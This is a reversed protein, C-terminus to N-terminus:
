KETPECPVVPMKRLTVPGLLGSTLPNHDGREFKTINTKTKRKDPPLKQDGILRNAWLNVVQIELRNKGPKAVSSIDVRYPAKWLTGLAHGNLSVQTVERLDGLDLELIGKSDLMDAPIDIDRVYTAAGSYYKINPDDSETWSQLTKFETSEPADWGKEFHVQWPGEVAQTVTEPVTVRYTQGKQNQLEYKGKDQAILVIGRNKDKVIQVASAYQTDPAYPFLLKGDKAISTFHPNAPSRFVVFTSGYPEIYLPMTVRGDKQVAYLVGRSIEGTDPSWIEPAKKDVRFNCQYYKAQNSQNSVFYIDVNGVVRHIYDLADQPGNGFCEFDPLVGSTALIDKASKWWIVRGKGYVNQTVTRGDTPGWLQNALEALEIDCSPYDKLGTVSVPKPGIITAGAKVLDALKRLAELSIIQHSPLVLVRYSMGDPLVLRGDRVEMRSLLVEENIVDYDYRPRVRAPDSTKLQVFNPAQDGYYYCADAVFLGQQLLFQCRNLYKVFDGSYKWLTNKPNFHTGAFYEQGPLGTEEPSCTFAHWYLSNFGECLSRDFAPKLNTGLSEEWHLGINTFGEANVFKRGYIHAASAGQKNFFRDEDKVRHQPSRAWFEMMPVDNRGLCKLADIPAGHPGGSEPHIGLKNQHALEAFVGYHNDAICDGITKRFDNLFRNSVTRNEVIRGAIVPLLPVIDYGRRKRFEQPFNDTWNMGGAEWSDTHLYKLTKGSWPAADGVLPKVVQDWYERFVDPNLYDIVLGKWDGSSTSVKAGTITYGFRIIEWKGVPADWVFRGEDDMYKTLDIVDNIRVDEEGPVPLDDMLLPTTDPCSWALEKSAIKLPLDRIPKQEIQKGSLNNIDGSSIMAPSDNVKYGVVAIDRYFRKDHKPMPLTIDTKTGGTIQKESWVVDKAAMEPQVNPGGLNWGSQINLSLDLGLRDAERLTHVFLNRWKDSGFLPGAPVTRNGWQSAGDADCILAGGWGMKKMEELDRTIAAPTVNGNLWWWYAHIRSEMPPDAFGEELDASAVEEKANCAIGQVPLIILLICQLFKVPFLRVCRRFEMAMKLFSKKM